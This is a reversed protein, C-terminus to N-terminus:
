AGHRYRRSLGGRKLRSPWGTYRHLRLRHHTHKAHHTRSGTQGDDSRSRAQAHSLSRCFSEADARIRLCRGRVNATCAAAFIGTLGFWRAFIFALPAYVLITRTMSVIMGLMPKGVANFSSTATMAIGLAMYSILCSAYICRRRASRRIATPLCASAIMGGTLALILAIVLGYTLSFREAWRIGGNVRDPLRAGYNQGVFPTVAVSLSMLVLSALSEVRSAIGFGAVAEQGFQAVQSTIFATTVPGIVTAPPPRCDWTYYAVGRTWARSAPILRPNRDPSRAFLGGLDIRGDHRRQGSRDGGRRRRCRATACGVLGFILIPALVLHLVAASTVIIAPTRADGAARLVPNVILPVVVFVGGYYYIRMYRRIIELTAEEAGLLRFLPDITLLGIVLFFLGTVVGLLIAHFAVRGVDAINDEGFLRACVASTGHALGVTVSGIFFVVPFTFSVAALELAGLQGIFYADAINYSVMAFMGLLTPYMLSQIVRGEPGQTLKPRNRPEPNM